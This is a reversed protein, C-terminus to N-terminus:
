AASRWPHEDAPLDLVALVQSQSVGALDAIEAPRYGADALHRIMERQTHTLEHSESRKGAAVTASSEELLQELREIDRDAEASLQDLLQMTTDVRGLVSREFEHLRVELHNVRNTSSEEAALLDRRAEQQSDRTKVRHWSRRGIRFITATLMLIGLAFLTSSDFLSAFLM